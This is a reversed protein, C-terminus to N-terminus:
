FLANASPLGQNGRIPCCPREIQNIAPQRSHSGGVRRDRRIEDVKAPLRTKLDYTDIIHQRAAKRIPEQAEPDALVEALKDAWGDVDFFDVLHGTVGDEIVEAVPPTNSGVVVCGLCMAELMSWSLVFPYSLYAHARGVRLLNLLDPYPVRGTFHLRRPDIKSGTEDLFM